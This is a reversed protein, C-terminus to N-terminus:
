CHKLLFGTRETRGTPAKSSIGQRLQASGDEAIAWVAGDGGVSISCFPKETPIHIWSLGQFCFIIYSAQVDM